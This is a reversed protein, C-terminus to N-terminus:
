AQQQVERRHRRRLGRHHEVVDLTMGILGIRAGRSPVAIM